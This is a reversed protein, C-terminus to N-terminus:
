FPAGGELSRPCSTWVCQMWFRELFFMPSGKDTMQRLPLCHFVFRTEVDGERDRLGPLVRTGFVSLLLLLAVSWSEPVVEVSISWSSQAGLFDWLYRVRWAASAARGLEHDSVERQGGPLPSSDPPSRTRASLLWPTLPSLHRWIEWQASRPCPSPCCWCFSWRGPGPCLCRLRSAQSPSPGPRRKYLCVKLGVSVASIGNQRQRTVEYQTM